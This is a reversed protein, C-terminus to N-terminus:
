EYTKAEIGFGQKSEKSDSEEIANIQVNLGTFNEISNKQKKKKNKKGGDIKSNAWAIGSRNM